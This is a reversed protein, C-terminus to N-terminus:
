IRLNVLILLLLCAIVWTAIRISSLLGVTQVDATSPRHDPQTQVIPDALDEPSADSDTWEETDKAAAAHGRDAQEEASQKDHIEGVAGESAKPAAKSLEAAHRINLQAYQARGLRPPDIECDPPIEIKQVTKDALIKIRHTSTSPSWDSYFGPVRGVFLSVDEVASTSVMEAYRAFRDPRVVLYFGICDSTTEERFDIESTYSVVGWAVCQEQEDDVASPIISLSIDTITRDTGFMSYSPPWAAGFPHLKASISQKATVTNIEDQPAGPLLSGVTLTDHLTLETAKFYLTWEWPIQDRDIKNGDAGVEQVSWEYLNKHESEPCLIVRRDIHNEM